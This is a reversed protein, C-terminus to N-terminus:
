RGARRARKRANKRAVFEAGTEGPLPALPHVRMAAKIALWETRRYGAARTQKRSM